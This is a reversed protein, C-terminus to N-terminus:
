VYFVAQGRNGGCKPSHGTTLVSGFFSHYRSLDGGRPRPPVPRPPGWRPVLQNNGCGVQEVGVEVVAGREIPEGAIFEQDDEVAQVQAVCLLEHSFDFAQPMRGAGTRCSWLKTPIQPDFNPHSIITLAAEDAQQGVGNVAM